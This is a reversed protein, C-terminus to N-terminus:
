RTTLLRRLGSLWGRGGEPVDVATSEAVRSKNESFRKYPPVWGRSLKEIEPPSSLGAWRPLEPSVHGKRIESYLDELSIFGERVAERLLKYWLNGSPNQNSVWPQTPMDTYHILSTKGEEYHELSNWEVPLVDGKSNQSVVCCGTMLEKYTYRGEDLGRVIEAADWALKECDMLMVSYQPPRGSDPPQRCYAIALDGMQWTWLNGLDSFVQMDADMYIARGRYGCLKPIHFRSFSFGSRSRNQPDKPVPIDRDDIAAVEVSIPTHRKISYELVKLGMKQFADTGVFVRIPADVYLPAYFVGTSRLTECIGPFQKDFNQHGNALLTRTALDDFQGSYRAGGDVGLSRVTRAGSAVLLNLAAEASFFKAKIVPFGPQPASSSLNYWLLRGERDLKELVPYEAILEPLTKDSPFNKMHPRYPMALFQANRDIEAACDGVVDIDIIHALTVPFERVVHNLSCVHYATLDVEAVKQFTPGKGLILWPKGAADFTTAWETIDRV